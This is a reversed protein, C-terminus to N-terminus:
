LNALQRELLTIKKAMELEHIALGESNDVEVALTHKKEQAKFAGSDRPEENDLQTIKTFNM